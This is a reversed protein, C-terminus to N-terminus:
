ICVTIASPKKLHVRTSQNVLQIKQRTQKRSVEPVSRVKGERHEQRPCLFFIDSFQRTCSVGDLGKSSEM